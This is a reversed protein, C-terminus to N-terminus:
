NYGIYFKHAEGITGFIRIKGNKAVGIKRLSPIPIIEYGEKELRKKADTTRM